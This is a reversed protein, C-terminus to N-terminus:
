IDKNFFRSESQSKPTSIAFFSSWDASLLEQKNIINVHQFIPEITVKDISSNVTLTINKKHNKLLEGSMMEGWISTKDNHGDSIDIIAKDIYGHELLFFLINIDRVVCVLRCEDLNNIYNILLSNTNFEDVVIAVLCGM